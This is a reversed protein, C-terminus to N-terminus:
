NQISSLRSFTWLFSENNKKKKKRGGCKGCVQTGEPVPAGCAVCTDTNSTRKMECGIFNVKGNWYCYDKLLCDNCISEM